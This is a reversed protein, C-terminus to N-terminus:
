VCDFVDFVDFCVDFLIIKIGQNKRRKGLIIEAGTEILCNFVDFVILCM